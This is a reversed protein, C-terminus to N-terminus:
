VSCQAKGGRVGEGDGRGAAARPPFSVGIPLALAARRGDAPPEGRGSGGAKETFACIISFSLGSSKGRHSFVCGPFKLTEKKGIFNQDKWLLNRDRPLRRVKLSLELRRATAATV